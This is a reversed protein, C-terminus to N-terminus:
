ISLTNKVILNSMHDYIRNFCIKFWQTYNNPNSKLDNKIWVMDKYEVSDVEDYNLTVDSDSYAIYVHDYEYEILGKDFNTKYIFEFAKYPSIDLGLEDICRRKIASILNENPLPHSCCSNSWLGPSHYKILARKQLLLQHNSNFIFVSFARHLLGLQHAELKKMIGIDEDEENVLVVYPSQLNINKLKNNM